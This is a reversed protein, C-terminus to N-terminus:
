PRPRPDFTGPFCLYRIDIRQQVGSDTIAFMAARGDLQVPGLAKGGVSKMYDLAFKLLQQASARCSALSDFGDQPEWTTAGVDGKTTFNKEWLIWASTSQAAAFSSGGALVSVLLVIIGISRATPM